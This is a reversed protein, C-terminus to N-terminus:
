ARAARLDAAMRTGANYFVLRLRCGSCCPRSRSRPRSSRSLPALAPFISGGRGVSLPKVNPPHHDLQEATEPYVGPTTPRVVLGGLWARANEPDEAASTRRHRGAYGPRDYACLLRLAPIGRDRHHDIGAEGQAARAPGSQTLALLGHRDIVTTEHGARVCSSTATLNTTLQPRRGRFAGTANTLDDRAAAACNSCSSSIIDCRSAPTAESRRRRCAAGTRSHTRSDRRPYLCSAIVVRPHWPM